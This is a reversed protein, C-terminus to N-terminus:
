VQYGFRNMTDEFGRLTTCRCQIINGGSAGLSSDGPHMMREVKEGGPLEFAQEIPIAAHYIMDRHNYKKSAGKTPRTREDLVPLWAKFMNVGTQRQVAKSREEQAYNAANHTETRAIVLARHKSINKAEAIRKAIVRPGVSESSGQQVIAQIDKLLTGVIVNSKELIQTNIYQNFFFEFTQDEAKQEIQRIVHKDFVKMTKRAEFKLIAILDDRHQYTFNPLFVPNGVLSYVHAAQTLAKNRWRIVRREFPIELADLLKLNSKQLQAIKQLNPM